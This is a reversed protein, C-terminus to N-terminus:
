PLGVIQKYYEVYSEACKGWTFKRLHAKLIEEDLLEQKEVGDVEIIKDCLLHEDAEDLYVVVDGGAEPLSTNRTSIVQTGCALSEVVPLGFGEFSSLVFSCHAFSYLVALDHDTVGRLTVLRHADTLDRYGAIDDELPNLLVLQRKGGRHLYSTYAKLLVPTNKRPHNCSSSFFYGPAMDYKKLVTDDFTPKFTERNVGWPIVSVKSPEVGSFDVIDRRSSESCTIVGRCNRLNDRLEDFYRSNGAVGWMEPYKCIALDHITYIARDFTEPQQQTNNPLHYVDYGVFRHKLKLRNSIKRFFPRDPCYFHLYKFKPFEARATTGRTNQSFLTVDFPLDMEHIAKLLEYTSRGIGTVYGQTYLPIISKIDVLINKRM